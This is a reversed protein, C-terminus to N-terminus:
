SLSVDKGLEKAVDLYLSRSIKGTSEYMSTANVLDEGCPATFNGGSQSSKAVMTTLGELIEQRNLGDDSGVEGAASKRLPMAGTRAKRPLPTNEVQGLRESLADISEQQAKILDQQSNVVEGIQRFSKALAKNFTGQDEFSKTMRETLGDLSTAMLQSQREIFSSVDYDKALQEDNAFQEQFSKEVDDVNEDAKESGGLLEVLEAQESKSLTGNALGEALESRRDTEGSIGNAAAELADLAKLLTDESMTESENEEESKSVKKESSSENSNSEPNESKRTKKDKMKEMEEENENEEDENMEQDAKDLVKGPAKDALKGNAGKQDKPMDGYGNGKGFSEAAAVAQEDASLKKQEAM